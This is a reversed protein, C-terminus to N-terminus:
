GRRSRRPSRARRGSRGPRARVAGALRRQQPEGGPRSSGSRPSTWRLRPRDSPSSAWSAWKSAANMATAPGACPPGCPRRGGRASPRALQGVSSRSPRTVSGRVGVELVLELDEAAVREVLPDVGRQAPEPERAVLPGLRRGRQGAALLRAGDSARRTMASGSRSRSSSGVLWRSRSARSHSSSCRRRRAPESSTAECSRANRSAVTSGPRPAARGGASRTGRRSCAGVVALALLAVGPRDLVDLRLGLRDGALLLEDLAVPAMALEALHVLM